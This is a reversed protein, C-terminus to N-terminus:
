KGVLWINNYNVDLRHPYIFLDAKFDASNNRNHSSLHHQRTSIKLIFNQKRKKVHEYTVHPPPSTTNTVPNIKVYNANHHNSM